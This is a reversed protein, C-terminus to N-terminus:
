HFQIAGGCSIYDDASCKDGGGYTVVAIRDNNVRFSWSWDGPFGLVQAFTTDKTTWRVAQDVSYDEDWCEGTLDGLENIGDTYCITFGGEPIPLVIPNSYTKRSRNLPKWFAPLWVSGDAPEIDGSIEGRDNINFPESIPYDPVASLQTLKWKGNPLPTWLVGVFEGNDGSGEGVIQGFDNVAWAYWKTIVAFGTTDLKHIKWKTVLQGNKWVFTPTWVVPLTPACGLCSQEVGSWGVILTGWKNVGAAYSSNYTPHGVDALTGLDVIGSMATWAIAHPRNQDTSASHGVILGTDSITVLGEDWGSETGGLTGLDIWEGAHRGFLPVALNHTSGDPLDGQAVAVGFDNVDGMSAWTGGPYTGLEWVKSQRLAPQAAVTPNSPAGNAKPFSNLARHQIAHKGMRPRVAQQEAWAVSALCSCLILALIVIRRM